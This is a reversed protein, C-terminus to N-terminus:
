LVGREPSVLLTGIRGEVDSVDIMRPSERDMVEDLPWLTGDSYPANLGARVARTQCEDVDNLYLQIATDYPEEDVNLDKDEVMTRLLAAANILGTLLMAAYQLQTIKGAKLDEDITAYKSGFM